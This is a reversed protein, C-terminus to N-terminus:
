DVFLGVVLLGDILAEVRVFDFTEEVADVILVGFESHCRNSEDAQEEM